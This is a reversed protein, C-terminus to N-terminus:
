TENLKKRSSLLFGVALVYNKEYYDSIKPKGPQNEQVCKAENDNFRQLEDKITLIKWANLNVHRYISTIKCKKGYEAM